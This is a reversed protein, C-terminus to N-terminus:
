RRDLATRERHSRLLRSRGRRIGVGAPQHWLGPRVLGVGNTWAAQAGFQESLFGQGVMKDLKIVQKGITLTASGHKFYAKPPADTADPDFSFGPDNPDASPPADSPGNSDISPAPM